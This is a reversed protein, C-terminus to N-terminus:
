GSEIRERREREREDRLNELEKEPHELWDLIKQEIQDRVERFKELREEEPVDESRPDDFVWILRTGVGPFTRPCNMEARACVIISYNFGVKGMYTRLGKPYQDAIDIGVEEMARVAYPHVEDYVECGASYSEFRDGAHERLLAEAMQSRASNQTCLFLVKQKRM